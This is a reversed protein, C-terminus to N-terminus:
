RKSAQSTTPVGKFDEKVKLVSNTRIAGVEGMYM